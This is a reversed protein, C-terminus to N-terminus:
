MRCRPRCRWLASRISTKNEWKVHLFSISFDFSGIAFSPFTGDLSPKWLLPCWLSLFKKKICSKKKYFRDYHPDHLFQDNEFTKRLSRSCKKINRWIKTAIHLLGCSLWIDDTNQTRGRWNLVSNSSFHWLPSQTSFSDNEFTKRLM